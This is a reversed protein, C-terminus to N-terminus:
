GTVPRRSIRRSTMKTPSGDRSEELDIEGTAAGAAVEVTLITIALNRGAAIEPDPPM